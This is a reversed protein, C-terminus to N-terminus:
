QLTEHLAALEQERAALRAQADALQAAATGRQQQKAALEASAEDLLEWLAQAHPHLCHLCAHQPAM